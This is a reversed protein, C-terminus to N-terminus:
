SSTGAVLFLLHSKLHSNFARMTTMTSQRSRCSMPNQKAWITCLTIQPRRSVVSILSEFVSSILSEFGEDSISSEDFTLAKRVRPITSSSLLAKGPEEKRELGALRLGEAVLNVISSEKPDPIQRGLAYASLIERFRPNKDDTATPRGTPFTAPDFDFHPESPDDEISRWAPRSSCTSDHGNREGKKQRATTDRWLMKYASIAIAGSIAANVCHKKPEEPNLPVAKAQRASQMLRDATLNPNASEAAM